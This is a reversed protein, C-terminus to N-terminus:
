VSKPHNGLPLRGVTRSYATGFEVANVDRRPQFEPHESIKESIQDQGAFNVIAETFPYNMHADFQDGNLWEPSLTWIESVIYADQNIARVRQRFEQWFGETLIEGAVDLRWGDIDFEKVWFEAIRMLYERVEPHDTNFEPLSRNERWGVFNAKKRGDYPALPWGEIKFWDIWPSHPGNELIDNFQFFGRSCHNFVGDLVIKMERQHIEDVLKRLASNGGLLPDVKITTM